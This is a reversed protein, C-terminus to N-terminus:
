NPHNCEWYISFYFDHELGGGLNISSKGKFCGNLVSTEMYKGMAESDIPELQSTESRVMAIGHSNRQHYLWLPSIVM